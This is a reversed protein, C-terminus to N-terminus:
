TFLHRDDVIRPLPCGVELLVPQVELVRRLHEISGLQGLSAVHRDTKQAPPHHHHHPRRAALLLPHNRHPRRIFVLSRVKPLSKALSSAVVSSSIACCIASSGSAAGSSVSSKKSCASSHSPLRYIPGARPPRGFPLPVRSITVSR